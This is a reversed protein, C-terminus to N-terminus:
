QLGGFEELLEEPSMSRARRCAIALDRQIPRSGDFRSRFQTAALEEHREDIEELTHRPIKM